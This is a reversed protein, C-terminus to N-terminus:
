ISADIYYPKVGIEEMQSILDGLREVDDLLEVKEIGHKLFIMKNQLDELVSIIQEPGQIKEYV